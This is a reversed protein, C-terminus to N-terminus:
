VMQAEPLRSLPCRPSLYRTPETHWHQCQPYRSPLPPVAKQPCRSCRVTANLFSTQSERCQSVPARAPKAGACRIGPPWPTVAHIQGGDDREACEDLFVGDCITISKAMSCGWSLPL